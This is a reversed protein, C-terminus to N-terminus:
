NHASGNLAPTTAVPAVPPAAVVATPAPSGPPPASTVQAVPAASPLTIPQGAAALTAAASKLRRAKKALKGRKPPEGKAEAAKNAARTAASRQAIVSKAGFLRVMAPYQRAITADTTVALALAPRMSEMIGRFDNWAVGEQSRAYKDWAASKARMASWAAAATATQTVYTLPPATLGFVQAYNAFRALEEIVDPMAALELNKPLSAAYDQGNTNTNGDPTSPISTLPPPSKIFVTAAAAAPAAPAAPATTPAASTAPAAEDNSPTHTHAHTSDTKKTTM